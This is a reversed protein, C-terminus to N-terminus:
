DLNSDKHSLLSVRLSLKPNKTKLNKRQKLITKAKNRLFVRMAIPNFINGIANVNVCTKAQPPKNVTKRSLENSIFLRLIPTKKKKILINIKVSVLMFKVRILFNTKAVNDINASKPHL